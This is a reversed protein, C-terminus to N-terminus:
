CFRLEIFPHHLFIKIVINKFNHCQQIIQYKCAPKLMIKHETWQVHNTFYTNEALTHNTFVEAFITFNSDCTM